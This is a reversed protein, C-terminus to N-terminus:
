RCTGLTKVGLDDCCELFLASYIKGGCCAREGDNSRFSKRNPYDGCCNKNKSSMELNGGGRCNEQARFGHDHSFDYVYFGFNNKAENVRITFMM